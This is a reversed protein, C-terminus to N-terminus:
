IRKLEAVMRRLTARQRPDLDEQEANDGALEGLRGTFAASEIFVVFYSIGCPPILTLFHSESSCAAAPQRV